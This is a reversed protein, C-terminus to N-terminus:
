DGQRGSLDQLSSPPELDNSSEEILKKLRLLNDRSSSQLDSSRLPALLRGLGVNSTKVRHELKTTSDELPELVFISTVVSVHNSSQISIMSNQEYRIVEDEFRVQSGGQEMVRDTRTARSPLGEVENPVLEEVYALGDIWQTLLEPQTLYPFVQEPPATITITTSFSNKKGGLIWLGAACILVVIAAYFLFRSFSSMFKFSDTSAFPRTPVPTIPLGAFSEM